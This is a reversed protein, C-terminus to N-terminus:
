DGDAVVPGVAVGAALVGVGAVEVGLVGAGGVIVCAPVGAVAAGAGAGCVGGGAVLVEVALSGLRGVKRRPLAAASFSSALSFAEVGGAEAFAVTEFDAAPFVPVTVRVAVAVDFPM